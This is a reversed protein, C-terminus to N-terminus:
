IYRNGCIQFIDFFHKKKSMFNNTICRFLNKVIKCWTTSNINIQMRKINNVCGGTTCTEKLMSLHSAPLYIFIQNAYSINWFGHCIHTKNSTKQDNRYLIFFLSYFFFAWYVTCIESFRSPSALVAFIFCLPSLLRSSSSKKFFYIWKLM